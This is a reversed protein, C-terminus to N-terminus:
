AARRGTPMFREDTLMQAVLPRPAEFYEDAHLPVVWAPMDTWWALAETWPVRPDSLAALLVCIQRVTAPDYRQLWLDADFVDGDHVMDRIPLVVLHLLRSAHDDRTDAM